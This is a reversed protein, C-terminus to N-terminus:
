VPERKVEGELLIRKGNVYWVTREGENKVIELKVLIKDEEAKKAIADVVPKPLWLEQSM